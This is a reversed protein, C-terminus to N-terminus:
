RPTRALWLGTVRWVWSRLRQVTSVTLGPRVYLGPGRGRLGMGILYRDWRGNGFRRIGDSLHCPYHEEDVFGGSQLLVGGPRLANVLRRAAGLPDPLHEFVDFSVVVDYDADPQPLMSRSVLFRAPLGRREFRHMAFRFAPGDVDVLTVEYGHSALFLGDTGIGAGFDLVRHFGRGPPFDRLLVQLGKWYPRRDPSAHWQAQEWVYLDTSRYFGLIEEPERPDARRWAEAMESWSYNRVRTLCEDVSRGTFSSLDALDDETLYRPDFRDELDSPPEVPV